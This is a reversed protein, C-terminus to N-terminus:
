SSSSGSASKWEEILVLSTIGQLNSYYNAILGENWTM